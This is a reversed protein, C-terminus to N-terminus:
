KQAIQNRALKVLRTFPNPSRKRHIRNLLVWQAAHYGFMWFKYGALARWAKSEAEIMADEITLSENMSSQAM